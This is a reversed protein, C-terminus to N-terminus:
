RRGLRSPTLAAVRSLCHRLAELQVPKVLHRDFGAQEIRSRTSADGFGTMAVLKLDMLEPDERLRAALELGDMGPLGIDCLVVEPRRHRLQALADEASSAVEVRHGSATLLEALTEAIDLNDEVILLDLQRLDIRSEPAASDPAEIEPFEIQFCAGRGVGDSHARLQFGHLDILGKVLALGLGLGQSQASPSRGQRFPEFIQPLLEPEIGAGDDEVRIVGRGGERLVEIGVRGGPRTFKLANSILNDLIQVLRVRDALTWLEGEPLRLDLVRERFQQRRDDIAQRVLEILQVPKIVLEVKGRAVRAVDLLGDILKTTQLTQRDFISQLRQLQPTPQEIRSLLETANRIAAMPNRLEHGLMALFDDKQQDAERLAAEVRKLATINQVVASAGHVRGESDRLPAFNCLWFTTRESQSVFLEVDYIPEGSDLVRQVWLPMENAYLQKLPDTALPDPRAELASLYGNVHRIAGRRDHISVGVPLSTYLAELEASKQRYSAESQRLRDLILLRELFQALMRGIRLLGDSLEGDPEHLGKGRLRLVCSLGDRRPIPVLLEGHDGSIASFLTGSHGVLDAPWSAAPSAGEVAPVIRVWAQPSADRTAWLEVDDVSLAARIATQLGDGVANLDSAGALLRSVELELSLRRRTRQRVIAGGLLNAVAQLFDQHAVDDVGARRGYLAIAGLLVGDAVIPCGVGRSLLSPTDRHHASRPQETPNSSADPGVWSALEGSQTVVCGRAVVADLLATAGGRRALTRLPDAGLGRSAVLEFARSRAGLEVIVGGSCGPLNGFLAGLAEDYVRKPEALTLALESLRALAAHQHRQVIARSKALELQTVDTFTITLGPETADSGAFLRVLYVQSTGRIVVEQPQRESLARRAAPLLGRGGPLQSAIASLEPPAEGGFPGFVARAEDSIFVTRLQTDCLLLPVGITRVVLESDEARPLPPPPPFNSIEAVSGADAPPSSRRRPSPGSRARLYGQDLHEFREGPFLDIHDLALLLGGDRLSYHLADILDGRRSVPVGDFVRHCVVLDMRAMPLDRTLEHRSFICVERLTESMRITEGEDFTYRGRLEPDMGLAAGAPYRGARALALAEEDHDTGFVILKVPAPALRAAESLLMAVTYTLGGTKCVPLWARVRGRPAAHRAAAECAARAAAALHSPLSFARSARLGGPSGLKGGPEPSRSAELVATQRPVFASKPRPTQAAGQRRVVQQSILHRYAFGGVAHVIRLGCEGEDNPLALMAASNSGWAEALSLLLRDLTHDDRLSRAALCVRQGEFWPRRHSPVFYCTGRELPTGDDLERLEGRSAATTLEDLEHNEDNPRAEIQWVIIAGADVLSPRAVGLKSRLAVLLEPGCPGVVFVACGALSQAPAEPAAGATAFLGQRELRHQM